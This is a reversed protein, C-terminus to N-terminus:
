PVQQIMEPYGIYPFGHILIKSINMSTTRPKLHIGLIVSSKQYGVVNPQGDGLSEEFSQIASREVATRGLREEPPEFRLLISRFSTLQSYSTRVCIGFMNKPLVCRILRFTTEHKFFQCLLGVETLTYIRQINCSGVVM